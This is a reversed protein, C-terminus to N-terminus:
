GSMPDKLHFATRNHKSSFKLKLSAKFDTIIEYEAFRIAGALVPSKALAKAVSVLRFFPTSVEATM